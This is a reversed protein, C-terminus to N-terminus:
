FTTTKRSTKKTDKNNRNYVEQLHEAMSKPQKALTMLILMVVAAIFGAALVILAAKM